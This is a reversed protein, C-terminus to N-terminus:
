KNNVLRDRVKDRYFNLILLVIVLILILTKWDFISLWTNRTELEINEHVGAGSSVIFPKGTYSKYDPAEVGIYYTGEPVLFSYTGRVDTIQPNEQQYRKAGWIEYNNTLPNLWFLSVTAKNIRTEEDGSKRYIYGEPDIVATLRIQRRGVSPDIYDLITIVEYEGAVVPAIIDATYIGDLDPDTYEFENVIFKEEIPIVEEPVTETFTPLAFISSAVLSERLIERQESIKPAGAKFALYGKVGHVPGDPKMILHLPQGSITSIKQSVNGTNDVSLAVGLDISEGEARAFVFESPINNKLSPSLKAVPINEPLTFKEVVLDPAPLGARESLGPLKLTVGKIKNLDSLKEVGVDHLTQALAPFKTALIQIDKPLPALAFRNIARQPLLNWTDKFALPTTQPVIESLPTEAPTETKPKPKLFSPIISDVAESIPGATVPPPTNPEPNTPPPNIPMPTVRKRSGSSTTSGSSNSVETTDIVLAKNAALNTTPTFNSMANGATDAITGSITSELDLSTDGAQVTYNCTGTTASTVTFTCTRDTAGTELTVTVNGTSTVAESFTVDIDIVEGVTYTGNAKDSSVSTITPATTDVYEVLAWLTSIGLDPDADVVRVGIQTTDLLASTWAGGAQPDTYSTLKYNRPLVDGNTKWTTDDHTITGGVDITGSAQSKIGMQYSASAALVPVHRIGVQVLTISDSSTIGANSSSEMNVFLVDNNVDLIYYDTSDNPSIEDVQGWDSGSDTGGRSGQATDGDANPQMHIISGAGVTGTQASGTSDNVAMDDIYWEGTTQAELNLNGGVTFSTIGTSLSRTTSTAFIIGDVAAQVVDSGAAPSGDMRVNILYWTNTSLTTTGTIQGDEDYLKLVGTEDLTLYVMVAADEMEFIRNEASPLTTINIYFRAFFPGNDATSAVHTGVATIAGSTLGNIRVSYDGSRKVSSSLSFSGSARPFEISATANLEGGSSWLRAAESIGPSLAILLVVTLLLKSLKKKM